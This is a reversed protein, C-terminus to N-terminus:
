VPNLLTNAPAPVTKNVSRDMDACVATSEYPTVSMEAHTCVVNIERVEEKSNSTVLDIHQPEDTLTFSVM